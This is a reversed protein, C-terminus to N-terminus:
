IFELSTSESIYDFSKFREEEVSTCTSKGAALWEVKASVDKDLIDLQLISLSPHSSRDSETFTITPAKHVAKFIGEDIEQWNIPHGSKFFPHERISGHPSNPSGLRKEPDNELLGMVYSHAAPSIYRPLELTQALNRPAHTEENGNPFMQHSFDMQEGWLMQIFMVGLAWFDVPYSYGENSTSKELRRVEPAMYSYTGCFTHCTDDPTKLLRGLGYDILRISGTSNVIAHELKLDRYVINKSHLYQLVCILQAVYFRIDNEDMRRIQIKHSLTGGQVLEMVLFLNSGQHFACYAKIMYPNGDSYRFLIQKEIELQQRAQENTGDAVKIAFYQKSLIHQVCYVQAYGGSGLRGVYEFDNFKPLSIRQQKELPFGPLPDFTSFGISSSTTGRKNCNEIPPKPRDEGLIKSVTSYPITCMPPVNLQCHQHIIFHCQTCQLANRSIQTGCHHCYSRNSSTIARIWPADYQRFTHPIHFTLRVNKYLQIAEKNSFTSKQCWFPINPQCRVHTVLSCQSCQFVRSDQHNVNRIYGDCLACRVSHNFQELKMLHGRILQPSSIQAHHYNNIEVDRVPSPVISNGINQLSIEFHYEGDLVMIHSLESPVRKNHTSKSLLSSLHNFWLITDTLFQSKLTLCIIQCYNGDNVNWDFSKNVSLVLATSSESPELIVADDNNSSVEKLKKIYFLSKNLNNKSSKKLSVIRVRLIETEM